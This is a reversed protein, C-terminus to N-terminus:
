AAAFDGAFGAFGFGYHQKDIELAAILRRLPATPIVGFANALVLGPYCGPIPSSECFRVSFTNALCFLSKAEVHPKRANGVREPNFDMAFM